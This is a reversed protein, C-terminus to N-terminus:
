NYFHVYVKYKETMGLPIHMKSRLSGPFSRLVKSHQVCSAARSNRWVICLLLNQFEMSSNPVFWLSQFYILPNRTENNDLLCLYTFIICVKFAM